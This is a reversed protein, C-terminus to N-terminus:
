MKLKMFLSEPISKVICMIIRWFGPVYIVGSKGSKMADFIRKGVAASSAFLFNKPVHLTMPTDVFGPKITLVSVGKHFM